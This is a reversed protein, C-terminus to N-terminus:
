KEILETQKTALETQTAGIMTALMLVNRASNETHLACVDDKQVGLSKTETQFLLKRSVLLFGALLILFKLM